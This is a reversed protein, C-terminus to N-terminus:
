SGQSSASLSNLHPSVVSGYSGSSFGNSAAKLNLNTQSLQENYSMPRMNSVHGMNSMQGMNTMQGINSMQGIANM